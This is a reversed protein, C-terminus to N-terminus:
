LGASCIQQLDVFSFAKNHLASSVLITAIGMRKLQELDTRNRVGGAAIINHKPHQLKYHQLRKFDPGNTGGVNHLSMIIVDRPWLGADIFLSKVGLKNNEQYDLSLIYRRNHSSIITPLHENRVSESGLVPLYNKPYKRDFFDADFGADVMFKIKPYHKLLRAILLGHNGNTAIADLDAIYYRAFPYLDQLAAIVDEVRSSQCLPSNIPQYNHRYGAKAHVVDGAKLDIVPIINM